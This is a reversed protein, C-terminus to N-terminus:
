LGMDAGFTMEQMREGVIALIGPSLRAKSMIAAASENESIMRWHRRTLMRADVIAQAVDETIKIREEIRFPEDILVGVIVEAYAKRATELMHSALMPKWFYKEQDQELVGDNALCQLSSPGYCRDFRDRHLKAPKAFCAEFLMTRLANQMGQDPDNSDIQSLLTKLPGEDHAAHKIMLNVMLKGTLHNVPAMYSARKFAGRFDEALCMLWSSQAGRTELSELYKLMQNYLVAAPTETEIDGFLM